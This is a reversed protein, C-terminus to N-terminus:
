LNLTTLVRARFADKIDQESCEASIGLVEYPNTQTMWEVSGVDNNTAM